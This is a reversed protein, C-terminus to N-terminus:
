GSTAAPSPAGSEARVALLDRLYQRFDRRAYAALAQEALAHRRPEDDLLERCLGGLESPRGCAMVALLDANEGDGDHDKADTVVARRNALADGIRGLELVSDERSHVNLVLKSRAILALREPGYVGSAVHVRVGSRGIDAFISDRRWNVAGYFLADIDSPTAPDIRTNEPLYGPKLLRVRDSVGLRHWNAINAESYDWTEFRRVFPIMERIYPSGPVVMEVNYIITNPPLRDALAAELHHAGVIINTADWVLTNQDIRAPYGLLRLGGCLQDAANAYADHHISEGSRVVVINFCEMAHSMATGAAADNAGV